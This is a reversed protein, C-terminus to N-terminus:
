LDNIALEVDANKWAQQFQARVLGAETERGEARLSESLGFLSRPNRPNRDLDERFAKEAETYQHDRYLAAGLSERVPYYWDPPEDYALSDQTAVAARWHEIAAKSDGQAAALRADLAERALGLVTRAPNFGYNADAPQKAIIEALAARETQAENINGRKAFAAGRAYHWVATDIQFGHDPAPLKAIDNWRGFRVLVYAPFPLFSELMPMQKAASAVNAVLQDAASKADAFRGQMSAALSLFHLNHSYYMLGYIGGPDAGKLYAQDATVAAQNSKMAQSYDGTREYIHAPMHVLHGAAPALTELRQASPLADEPHPSAELAHVYYHNAGVHEPDRRLAGRLVGVIEETNEGPKGDLSWLQWPNLDMMSEAYLTAADLDDPYRQSLARMANKYDVALRKLDAKPDNTYRCALAAVYARENEPGGSALTGAKQIADFAAKERGPDVDDNYNPGVALAVGWWSMPAHPDLEAARKFSRIAEEHNFAYVLTLGQDFFKQAEPNSTAIPHHHNGLGSLLVATPPKDLAAAGLGALALLLVAFRMSDGGASNHKPFALRTSAGVIM